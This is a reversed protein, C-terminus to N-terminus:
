GDSSNLHVLKEALREGLRRSFKAAGRANLHVPDAFDEHRYAGCENLDWYTMDQTQCFRALWAWCREETGPAYLRKGYDPHQPPQVLVLRMGRQRALDRFARLHEAPPSDDRFDFVRAEPLRDGPRDGLRDGLKALMARWTDPPVAAAEGVHEPAWWGGLGKKLHDYRYAHIPKKFSQFPAQLLNEVGRFSGAVLQTPPLDGRRIARLIDDLDGYRGLLEAEVRGGAELELPMVGVILVRPKQRGKLLDRALICNVDLPSGPLALNFGSASAGRSEAAEAIVPPMVGYHIQSNGVFVVAPDLVEKQFFRVKLMDPATFPQLFRLGLTEVMLYAILVAAVLSFLFPGLWPKPKHAPELRRDVPKRATAGRRAPRITFDSVRLGSDSAPTPASRLRTM